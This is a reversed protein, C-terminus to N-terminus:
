YAKAWDAPATSYVWQVEASPYSRGWRTGQIHCHVIQHHTELSAPAKSFTSYGKIAMAELDVRARLPLM